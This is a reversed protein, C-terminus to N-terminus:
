TNTSYNAVFTVTARWFLDKVLEPHVQIRKAKIDKPVLGGLRSPSVDPPFGEDYDFVDISTDLANKIRYAYEDRQSKNSAFVDIAWMRFDLGRRNGLELPLVRIDHWEVVISPIVLNAEPFGDNITIFPADAFQDVLWYYISLDQKRELLM